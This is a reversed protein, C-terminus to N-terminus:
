CPLKRMRCRKDLEAITQEFSWGKRAIIAPTAAKQMRDRHAFQMVYSSYKIGCDKCPCDKKRWSSGVYRNAIGTM